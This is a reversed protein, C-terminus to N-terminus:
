QVIGKRSTNIDCTRFGVSKLKHRIEYFDNRWEVRAYRLRDEPMIHSHMWDCYKEPENMNLAEKSTLLLKTIMAITTGNGRVRPMTHGFLLYNKQYDYLKFGLAKEIYPLMSKHVKM